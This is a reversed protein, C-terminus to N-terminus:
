FTEILLKGPEKTKAEFWRSKGEKPWSVKISLLQM